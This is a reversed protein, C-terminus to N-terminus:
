FGEDVDRVVEAIARSLAELASSPISRALHRKMIVAGVVVPLTFGWPHSATHAWAYRTCELAAAGNHKFRTMLIISTHMGLRYSQAIIEPFAKHINFREILVLEAYALALHCTYPPQFHPATFAVASSFTYELVSLRLDHFADSQNIIAGCGMFFLTSEQACQIIDHWPPLLVNMFEIVSAAIYNGKKDHGVFPDRHTDDTHTTIIICVLSYEEKELDNVLATCQQSYANTKRATGFDFIVDLLHLGGHPFYLQLFSHIMDAPSGATPHNVLKFHIILVPATSIYYPVNENLKKALATHCHMCRFRVDAQGLEPVHMDPIDLCDNKKHPPCEVDMHTRLVKPPIKIKFKLNGHNLITVRPATGGNLKSTTQKTCAM